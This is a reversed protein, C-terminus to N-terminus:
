ALHLLSKLPIGLYVYYLCGIRLMRQRSATSRCNLNVGSYIEVFDSTALLGVKAGTKDLLIATLGGELIIKVNKVWSGGTVNYRAENEVQISFWREDSLGLGYTESMTYTCLGMFDSKGSVDFMIYHPDGYAKCM